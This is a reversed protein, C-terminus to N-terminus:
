VGSNQIYIFKKLFAAERRLRSFFASLERQRRTDYGGAMAFSKSLITLLLIILQCMVAANWSPRWRMRWNTMYEGSPQPPAIHINYANGLDIYWAATWLYLAGFTSPDVKWCHDWLQGVYDDMSIAAIGTVASVRPSPWSQDTEEVPYLLSEYKSEELGPPELIELSRREHSERLHCQVLVTGM